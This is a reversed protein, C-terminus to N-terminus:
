NYDVDPDSTKQNERECIHLKPECLFWHYSSRQVILAWGHLHLLFLFSFDCLSNGGSTCLSEFLLLLLVFFTHVRGTYESKIPMTTERERERWTKKGSTNKHIESENVQFFVVRHVKHLVDSFKFISFFVSPFRLFSLFLFHCHFNYIITTKYSKRWNSNM